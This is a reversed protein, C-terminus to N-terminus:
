GIKIITIRASVHYTSLGWGARMYVKDPNGISKYSCQHGLSLVLGGPGVEVFRDFESPDMDYATGGSGIGLATAPDVKQSADYLLCYGPYVKQPTIPTDSTYMSVLSFGSIRYWGESLVIQDQKEGELKIPSQSSAPPYQQVTYTFERNMFEETMLVNEDKTRPREEFIAFAEYM